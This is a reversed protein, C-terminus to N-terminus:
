ESIKDDVIFFRGTEGDAVRWKNLLWFVRRCNRLQGGKATVAM